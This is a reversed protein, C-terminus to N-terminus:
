AQTDFQLTDKLKRPNEGTVARGAPPLALGFRPADGVARRSHRRSEVGVKVV